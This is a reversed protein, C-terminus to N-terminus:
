MSSPSTKPRKRTFTYLFLTANLAQTQNSVFFNGSKLKLTVLQSDDLQIAAIDSICYIEDCETDETGELDVVRATQSNKNRDAWSGSMCMAAFHNYKGCKSCRRRFAPCSERRKLYHPKGCNGCKKTATNNDKQAPPFRFGNREVSARPERKSPHNVADVQKTEPNEEVVKM